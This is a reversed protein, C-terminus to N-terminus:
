LLKTKRWHNVKVPINYKICLSTIGWGECYGIGSKVYRYFRPNKNKSNYIEEISLQLKKSDLIIDDVNELYPVSLLAEPIYYDVIGETGIIPLLRKRLNLEVDTFYQTVENENQLSFIKYTYLSSNDYELNIDYESVWDCDIYTIREKFKKSLELIFNIKEYYSFVKRTYPYCTADNFLDVVDTLIHLNNNKSFSNLSNNYLSTSQKGVCMTAFIM